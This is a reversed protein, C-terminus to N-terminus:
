AVDLEDRDGPLLGDAKYRAITTRREEEQKVRYQRHHEDEAAILESVKIEQDLQEVDVPVEAMAKALRGAGRSIGPDDGAAIADLLTGAEATVRRRWLGLAVYRARTSEMAKWLDGSEKRFHDRARAESEHAFDLSAQWRAQVWAVDDLVTGENRSEVIRRAKEEPIAETVPEHDAAVVRHIREDSATLWSEVRWPAPFPKLGCEDAAVMRLRGPDSLLLKLQGVVDSM